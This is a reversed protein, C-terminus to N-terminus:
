NAQHSSAKGENMTQSIYGLSHCVMSTWNTSSPTAPTNEIYNAALNLQSKKTWTCTEIESVDSPQAVQGHEHRLSSKKGVM